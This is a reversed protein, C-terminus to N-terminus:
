KNRSWAPQWEGKPPDIQEYNGNILRRLLEMRYRVPKSGNVHIFYASSLGEWFDPRIFAWNWRDDLIEAEQKPLCIALWHQDLCWYRTAPREPPRYRDVEKRPIVLVGGNPQWDVNKIRLGQEAAVRRSEDKIKDPDPRYPMEDQACFRDRTVEFINPADPKVLIDADLWLTKNYQKAIQRVRWKNGMPWEPFQEDSLIHLDAGCRKAYAEILPKTITFYDVARGTAATVIARTSTPEKEPSSPPELYRFKGNVITQRSPYCVPCKTIGKPDFVRSGCRDCAWYCRLWRKLLCMWGPQNIAVSILGPRDPNKTKIIRCVGNDNYECADCIAQREEQYSVLQPGPCLHIKAPHYNWSQGCVTCHDHVVRKRPKPKASSEKRLAAKKAVPASSPSSLQIQVLQETRRNSCGM